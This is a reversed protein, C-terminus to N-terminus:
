EKEKMVKIGGDEGFKIGLLNEITAIKNELASCRYETIEIRSNLSLVANQLPAAHEHNMAVTDPALSHEFSGLDYSPLTM